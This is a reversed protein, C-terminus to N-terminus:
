SYQSKIKAEFEEQSLDGYENTFNKLDGDDDQFLWERANVLMNDDFVKFPRVAKYIRFVSGILVRMFPDSVIIATRDMWQETLSKIKVLWEGLTRLHHFENLGVTSKRVDFMLKYRQNAQMSYTYVGTWDHLFEKMDKDNTPKGQITLIVVPWNNYDFHHFPM